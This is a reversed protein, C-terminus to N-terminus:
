GGWGYRGLVGSMSFQLIHMFTIIIQEITKNTHLKDAEKDQDHM